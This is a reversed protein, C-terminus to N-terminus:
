GDSTTKAGVRGDAFHLWIPDDPGLASASRVVSGDPRSIWAYGRELVRQPSLLALGAAIQEVRREAAELWSADLRERLRNLREMQLGIRQAPSLLRGAARDVRQEVANIVQAAARQLRRQRQDLVQLLQRRDPCALAAAASPTPARLDAVWDALTTDTEHGVASVVPIPCALIARAVMESNFAWLDEISGGGRGVILVDIEARAGATAIAKALQEPASDGQVLSPYIIVGVGPMREGLLRLMDRVAAGSPSTVLGICGPFVPLARKRAVDFAGEAALHRKLAELAVFRAGLGALRVTDVQLQFEGRPEYLTAVARVDVQAGNALGAASANRNRFLVCRVQSTADKLSFYQHGSAARVLNSVEGTVWLLPMSRELEQRVLRSLQAVSLPAAGAHDAPTKPPSGALNDTESDVLTVRKDLGCLSKKAASQGRRTCHVVAHNFLM